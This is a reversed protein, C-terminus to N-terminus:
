YHTDLYGVSINMMIIPVVDIKVELLLASGTLIKTHIVGTKNTLPTSLPDSGSFSTM